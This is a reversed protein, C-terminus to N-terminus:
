LGAELARYIDLHAKAIKDIAFEREALRRGELAMKKRLEPDDVLRQIGMALAEANRAPVLLGSEGAEIADRCGPVDSTVVARGAAAAEVLVKPLGERYSPLVVINSAALLEPIDDRFGLLEVDGTDNIKKLQEDTV